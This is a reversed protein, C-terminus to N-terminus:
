SLLKSLANHGQKVLLPPCHIFDTLDAIQGSLGLGDPYCCLVLFLGPEAPRDLKPLILNLCSSTKEHCTALKPTFLSYLTFFDGNRWVISAV